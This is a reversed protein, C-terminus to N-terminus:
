MDIKESLNQKVNKFQEKYKEPVYEELYNAYAVAEKQTDKGVNTANYPKSYTKIHSSEQVSPLKSAEGAKM